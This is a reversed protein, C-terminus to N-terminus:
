GELLVAGRHGITHRVASGMRRTSILGAQCLVRAHESASAPSIGVRRALETTSCSSVSVATLVAARTRGLVAAVARGHDAAAGPQPELGGPERRVPYVLVPALAPDRLMIPTRWCFYSPIIHLGRDGLHLDRDLDGIDLELVPPRWTLTHHLDHSLKGFGGALATRSRKALDGQVSGAIGAWYPAILTRHYSRVTEALRGLVSEDGRALRGAWAPLRVSAALRDLDNRLREAPTAALADLGARLGDAAEIPTLFDPSYGVPPALQLLAREASGLRSRARRRWRGFVEPDDDTQLQHLSLLVEWMPDPQQAFTTRALSDCGFHIRLVM